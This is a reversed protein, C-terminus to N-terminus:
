GSYPPPPPIQGPPYGPQPMQGPPPANWQGPVGMVPFGGGLIPEQMIAYDPSFQQLFYLPYAQIFLVLPLTFVTGLYPLFGVCCTVCGVIAQGVGVGIGLVLEMLIFLAFKGGNGRLVNERFERWASMVDTGRVYMITSVFKVTFLNIIGLTIIAALFLLSGIVIAGIATGGFSRAAIDSWAIALGIGAILLMVAMAVGSLGVRFGFLSDGLAAYRRWTATVEASNNAISHILMFRGRSNLWLILLWIGIIVIAVGVGIAIAPGIHTTIWNWFDNFDSNNTPGGTGPFPTTRPMGPSRPFPAPTPPPAPARAPGGGGGSSNFRGVSEGMTALWAIFGITFWRGFNFPKFTMWIARNFALSVPQTVSIQM